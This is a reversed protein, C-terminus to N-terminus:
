NKSERGEVKLRIEIYIKNGYQDYFYANNYGNFTMARLYDIAERYTVTKDLDVECLEDFDKKMNINGEQTTTTNYNGDIISRLQNTLLEIEKDQIKKYVDYSTDWDNIKVEEQVIVPGHDLLEDMEHITVGIPFKNLLSFVQPYYGRNYPNLGPHINICRLSKVLKVPFIQKCHLSLVLDYKQIIDDLKENISIEKFSNSNNYKINFNLNKPSYFFDFKDNKYLSDNILLNFKDYIFENDTLVMIYM